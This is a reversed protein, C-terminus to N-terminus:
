GFGPRAAQASLARTCQGSRGCSSLVPELRSLSLANAAARRERQLPLPGRRAPSFVGLRSGALCQGVGGYRSHVSPRSCVPRSQSFAGLRENCRCQRVSLRRSQVSAASPVVGTAWVAVAWPRLFNNRNLNPRLPSSGFFLVSFCGNPQSPIQPRGPPPRRRAEVRAL